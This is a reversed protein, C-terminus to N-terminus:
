DASLTHAGGGIEPGTKTPSEAEEMMDAPENEELFM